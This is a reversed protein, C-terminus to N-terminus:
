RRHVWLEHDVYLLQLQAKPASVAKGTHPPNAHLSPAYLSLNDYYHDVHTHINGELSIYVCMM